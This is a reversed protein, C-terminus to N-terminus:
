AERMGGMAAMRSAHLLLALLAALLALGLVPPSALAPWRSLIPAGATALAPMSTAALLYGSTGLVLALCRTLAPYLWLSPATLPLLALMAPILAYRPATGALLLGVVMALGAAMAATAPAAPRSARITRGTLWAGTALAGLNLALAAASPPPPSTAALTEPGLLLRAHFAGLAANQLEPTGSIAGSLAGLADWPSPAVSGPLPAAGGTPVPTGWPPLPLRDSFAAALALGAVVTATGAAASRWKGLGAMAPLVALAPPILAGLAGFAVGAWLDRRRVLLALALAGLALAVGARADSALQERWPSFALWAGWVAVAANAPGGWATVGLRAAAASLVLNAALVLLTEVSLPLRAQLAGFLGYNTALMLTVALLPVQAAWGIRSDGMRTDASPSGALDVPTRGPPTVLTRRWMAGALALALLYVALLRGPPADGAVHHYAGDDVYLVPLLPAGIALLPLARALEVIRQWPSQRHDETGGSAHSGHSGHSWPDGAVYAIAGCLLWALLAVAIWRRSPLPGTRGVLLTAGLPGVAGWGIM